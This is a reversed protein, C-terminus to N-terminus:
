DGRSWPTRNSGQPTPTLWRALKRMPPRAAREALIGVALAAFVALVPYDDALHPYVKWHTLYIFLSAAALPVLASALLRPLRVIPLWVLVILGVAIVTEREPQGFFGAVSVCILVTVLLRRGLSNAAAIAWGLGFCWFVISPTYREAFSTEIGVQAYRAALGIGTVGLAFLWPSRRHAAAVAPISMLAVIIVLSWILAELFWFEWQNNLSSSGVWSNLFFATPWTYYGTALAIFGIWITSPIAIRAIAALGNRTRETRPRSLQFRAYNYGAIGLLLHAGGSMIALETHTIVVLVIAIARLVVSTDVTKTTIWSRRSKQPRALEEVPQRHWDHPLDGILDGLRDSVEVYSLSDGGLSVFSDRTTADPRALLEAYLDRLEEPPATASRRGGRAQVRQTRRQNRAITAAQEHLCAYDPKGSPLVPPREIYTSTIAGHPLGCHQAISRQAKPMDAHRTVFAFLRDGHAVLRAPIDEEALKDEVEALNIRLGFVKAFRNKRGILEFLGDDTRRALDGTRLETLLQGARLDAPDEAYGMMVNPGSYVLEGTGPTPSEPTSEVRLQGGPIAVGISGPHELTLDPPLYAMRATAETAGYMVYFDWGRRRGLEAYQTVRAPPLRGGAQTVYRLRPLDLECFRSRDLLDFTYPVGALSTAGVARFFEWFTPEAVSECTLAVSAGQFLHSNVVSLGYCYHLPLTTPARDDPGIHLYDAISRANSLLNNRSLRVLKPSGTSGSTSLLLALDSHLDHITGTRRERIRWNKPGGDLVVDPDYTRVISDLHDSHQGPVLIVPHAASLAALYGVLADLHNGGEILVLRRTPGLQEALADVRAQLTGFTIQEDATIVAPRDGFDGLRSLPSAAPLRRSRRPIDLM